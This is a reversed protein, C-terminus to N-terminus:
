ESDNLFKKELDKIETKISKLNKLARKYEKIQRKVSKGYNDNSVPMIKVTEIYMLMSAEIIKSAKEFYKKSDVILNLVDGDDMIFSLLGMAKSRFERNEDRDREYENSFKDFDKSFNSILESVKKNDDEFFSFPDELMLKNQEEFADDLQYLIEGLNEVYKFIDEYFGYKGNIKEEIEKLFNGFNDDMLSTIYNYDGISLSSLFDDDIKSYINEVFDSSYKESGQSDESFEDIDEKSVQEFEELSGYDYAFVKSDMDEKLIDVKKIENSDVNNFLSFEESSIYFIAGTDLLDEDLLNYVKDFDKKLDTEPYNPDEVQKWIINIFFDINEGTFSGTDLVVTSENKDNNEASNYTNL